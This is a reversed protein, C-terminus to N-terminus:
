FEEVVDDKKSPGTKKKKKPLLGDAKLDEISPEGPADTKPTTAEVKEMWRESFHDPSLLDFVDGGKRRVLNYYGVYANNSDEKARVRM